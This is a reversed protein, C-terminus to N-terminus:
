INKEYKAHKLTKKWLIEFIYKQDSFFCRLFCLIYKKHVNVNTYFYYFIKIYLLTGSYVFHGSSSSVAKPPFDPSWLASHDSVAVPPLGLSLAASFMGGKAHQVTLTFLHPLLEGTNRTVSIAQYVGSPALGFLLVRSFMQKKLLRDTKINEPLNCSADPLLRGLQIAM